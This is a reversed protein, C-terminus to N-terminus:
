FNWAFQLGSAEESGRAINYYPSICLVSTGPPLLCHASIVSEGAIRVFKSKRLLNGGERTSIWPVPPVIMPVDQAGFELESHKDASFLRFLAPLPRIEEFQKM